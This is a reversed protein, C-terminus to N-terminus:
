MRVSPLYKFYDRDMRLIREIRSEEGETSYYRGIDELCRSIGDETNAIVRFAIPYDIDYSNWAPSIENYKYVEDKHFGVGKYKGDPTVIHCLCVRMQFAMDPHRFTLIGKFGLADLPKGPLLSREQRLRIVREGIRLRGMDDYESLASGLEREIPDTDRYEYAFVKVARANLADLGLTKYMRYRQGDAPDTYIAKAEDTMAVRVAREALRADYRLTNAEHGESRVYVGAMTPGVVPEPAGQSDTQFLFADYYVSDLTMPYVLQAGDLSYSQLSFFHQHVPLTSNEEDEADYRGFQHNILQGNVDYYKLELAYKFSPSMIVDFHKRSSSITIKGEDDKDLMIEQYVPIPQTTSAIDYAIYTDEDAVRAMRLIAQITYIQEHGKVDREITAEPAKVLSRLVKKFEEDSCGSLLVAAFCLAFVLRVKM